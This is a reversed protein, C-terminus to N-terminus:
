NKVSINYNFEYEYNNEKLIKMIKLNTEKKYKDKDDENAYFDKKIIILLPYNGYNIEELYFGKSYDYIGRISTTTKKSALINKEKLIKRIKIALKETEKNYWRKM